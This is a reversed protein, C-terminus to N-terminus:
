FQEVRGGLLDVLPGPQRAPQLANYEDKMASRPGLLLHGGNKVYAILREAVAPPLVNLAPAEVFKYQDLPADPSIVDVAQPRNVCLATFPLWEGVPDFAGSHRQFNIAWRSNFDNILAVEAHPSTGSLASGAKDFKKVLRSSKTISPCPRDMRAPSCGGHYEEQGGPASAGSGISLWTLAM